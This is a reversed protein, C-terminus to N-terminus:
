PVGDKRYPPIANAGERHLRRRRDIEDLVEVVDEQSLGRARLDKTMGVVNFAVDGYREEPTM